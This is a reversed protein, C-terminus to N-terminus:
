PGAVSDARIFDDAQKAVARHALDIPRAVSAQPPLDGDLHERDREGGIRITEGAEFPFRPEDRLDIMRVDACKIVDDFAFVRREQNELEDFALRELLPKEPARHRHAVRQAIGRANRRRELGSVAFPDNM